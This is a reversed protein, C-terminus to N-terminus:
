HPPGILVEGVVLVTRDRGIELLLVEGSAVGRGTLARINVFHTILIVTEGAPLGFLFQRLEATQRDARAMNRFFSNIAPLDHVPGLGLLRATDRCRCWQSSLVRDVAVGADRIAAGIAQAQAKGRADLNRQTTCDDLAFEGTDGSGPALAHRMIAVTGPQSLRAFRADAAAPAPPLLFAAMVAVALLLRTMPAHPLCTPLRPQHM